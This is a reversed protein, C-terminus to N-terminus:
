LVPLHHLAAVLLTAIAGLGLSDAMLTSRERRLITRIENM